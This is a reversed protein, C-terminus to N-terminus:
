VHGADVFIDTAIDYKGSISTDRQWTIKGFNDLKSVFISKQGNVTKYGSIFINTALGINDLEIDIGYGKDDGPNHNTKTWSLTGSSEFKLIIIDNSQSINNFIYGTIFANGHGDVAIDMGRDNGFPNDYFKYVLSVGDSTYKELLINLKNTAINYGNGCVYLNNVSDLMTKFPYDNTIQSNATKCITFVAVLFILKRM